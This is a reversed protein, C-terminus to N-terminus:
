IAFLLISATASIGEQRGIAGIKESTTAKLSIRNPEIALDESIRAVMAPIHPNMKPQEAVITADINGVVYGKENILKNAARLLVRSDVDKYAPDTDPFHKGIDGLALAGLMADTIAHLLADADSHGDLGKTFPIDVGGLILKRGEKLRHLDFGYGIRIDRM